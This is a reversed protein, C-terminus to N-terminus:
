KSSRSLQITQNLLVTACFTDCVAVDGNVKAKGGSFKGNYGPIVLALNHVHGDCTAAGFVDGFGSIYVRGVTQTLSAEAYAFSANACRYALSLTATGTKDATANSVQVSLTPGAQFNINLTGGGGGFLDVTGIYYTTGATTPALLSGVGCSLVNLAGPTGTMIGLGVTYSSAYADVALAGDTSPTYRYWVTSTGNSVTCDPNSGNAQADDSDITAGTTDVTDSFPLSTVVTANAVTDNAPPSAAAVPGATAAVAGFATGICALVAVLQSRRKM